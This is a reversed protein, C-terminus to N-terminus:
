QGGSTAQSKLGDLYASMKEVSAEAESVLRESVQLEAETRSIQFQLEEVRSKLASRRAALADDQGIGVGMLAVPKPLGALEGAVAQAQARLRALAEQEERRRQRLRQLEDKKAEIRKPAAALEQRFAEQDNRLDDIKKEIGTIRTAVNNRVAVAAHATVYAKEVDGLEVSTRITDNASALAQSAESQKRRLDAIENQLEQIEKDRFM